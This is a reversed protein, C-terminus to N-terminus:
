AGRHLGPPTKEQKGALKKAINAVHRAYFRAMAQENERPM